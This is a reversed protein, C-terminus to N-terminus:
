EGHETECFVAYRINLEDNSGKVLLPIYNLFM